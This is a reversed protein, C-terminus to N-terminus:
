IPKFTRLHRGVAFGAGGLGLLGGLLLLLAGNVLGLGELKLNSQYLSLLESASISIWFSLVFVIALALMAGFLGYWLGLYLFPRRIYGDTAGVLNAVEIVDKKNEIHLRLTNGIVLLVALALLSTLGTVLRDAVKLGSSLRKVWDLDLHISEVGPLAQLSATFANAAADNAFLTRLQLVFVAPLPNEPLLKVVEQVNLGESFDKLAQEKSIYEFKAITPDERFRAALAQRQEDSVSTQLFVSLQPAGELTHTLAKANVLIMLFSSPLALAIGIVAITMISAMKTSWLDKLTSSCERLHYFFYLKIAAKM